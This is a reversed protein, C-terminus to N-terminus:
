KGCLDQSLPCECGGIMSLWWSSVLVTPRNEGLVNTIVLQELLWFGGVFIAILALMLLKVIRKFKDQAWSANLDM